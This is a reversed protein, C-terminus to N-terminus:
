IAFYLVMASSILVGSEIFAVGLNRDRTLEEAVRTGPLLLLDVVIRVVYLLVFGIVAFIVFATISETWGVFEGFVAKFTILGIALINGAMAIGVANNGNKIEEHIDFSTSIQYFISFLILVIMGLLFFVASRVATDVLSPGDTGEIGVGTGSTAAAIVLGVAVYVAFEVAGTGINHDEIIEKETDFKYLVLKDVVIRAGNLVLIGVISYVFVEVIGMWFDGDPLWNGDQIVIDPQYIVGVFVTIVGLFYGTISLGLSFNDNQGLQQNIRYPTLFDQALKALFLVVIGLAVYILGKPFFELTDIIAELM